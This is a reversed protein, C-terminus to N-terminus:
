QEQMRQPVLTDCDSNDLSGSIFHMQPKLTNVFTLGGTTFVIFAKQSDRKGRYTHSRQMHTRMEEMSSFNMNCKKCDYVKDSHYLQQHQM